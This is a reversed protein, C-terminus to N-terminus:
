GKRRVVIVVGAAALLLVLLGVGLPGTVPIGGQTTAGGFARIMWNGALYSDVLEITSDPPLQPPDPPDGTWLAIWSRGQSSTIDIAAPETAPTVGTVVFRDVVGILLDGTSLVQLPTGLQYVSFTNGDAAQVTENYTALLQAGNSPDGDPDLYVALQVPGGVPVNPDAPFLVWIESLFFPSTPPTFRNFWMFQRAAALGIGFSGESNDDDVVLQVGFGPPIPPDALRISHSPRFTWELEGSVVTPIALWLMAGCLAGLRVATRLWSCTSGLM